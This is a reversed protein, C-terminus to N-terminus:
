TFVAHAVAAVNGITSGITEYLFFEIMFDERKISMTTDTLVFFNGLFKPEAFMYTQNDPVLDRKITVIWRCNLLTREGFGNRLIEESLEGGIEDYGWKQVDKITVNNVLVTATELHSPTEPLIKLSDNVTDRTVGGAIERHQVTSTTAVTSGLAGLFLDVTAIANGDEVALIEKAAIDSIIQRIDMKYTRLSDVDKIFRRSTIRSFAVEYREGLIYHGDPATDFPINVAAPANPEKDMVIVPKDHSVSRTLDSNSVPSPPVIKRWFGQERVRVRLYDNAADNARKVLQPDNSTLNNWFQENLVTAFAGNM